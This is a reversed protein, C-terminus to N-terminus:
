YLKKSNKNDLYISYTENIKYVTYLNLEKVNVRIIELFYKIVNLNKYILAREISNSQFNNIHYIDM